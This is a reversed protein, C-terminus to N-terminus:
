FKHTLIICRVCSRILSAAHVCTGCRQWCHHCPHCVALHAEPIDPRVKIAVGCSLLKRICPVAGDKPPDLFALFGGFMMVAEDEPSLHNPQREFIRTALGLVRM